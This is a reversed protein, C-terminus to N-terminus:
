ESALKETQTKRKAAAVADELSTYRFEDLHFYDVSTKTIGHKLMENVQEQDAKSATDEHTSQSM